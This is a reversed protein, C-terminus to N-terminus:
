ISQLWLNCCFRYTANSIFLSDVMCSVHVHVPELAEQAQDQEQGQPPLHDTDWRANDLHPPRRVADPVEAPAAGRAQAQVVQVGGSFTFMFHLCLCLICVYSNWGRPGHHLPPDRVPQPRLGQGRRRAGHRRRLLHTDGVRLLRPRERGPPFARVAQEILCDDKIIECIFFNNFYLLRSIKRFFM